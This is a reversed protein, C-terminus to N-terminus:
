IHPAPRGRRPFLLLRGRRPTRHTRRVSGAAQAIAVASEQTEHAGAPEPLVPFDVIHLPLANSIGNRTVLRIPYRGPQADQRVEVRLKVLDTASKNRGESPAEAEQGEVTVTFPASAISAISAGALGSGRVTAIFTTGRQGAFPHISTAHPDIRPQAIAPLSAVIALLGVVRLM